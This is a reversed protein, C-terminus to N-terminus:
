VELAERIPRNKEWVEDAYEQEDEVLEAVELESPAEHPMLSLTGINYSALLAWEEPTSPAEEEISSALLELREENFVLRNDLDDGAVVYVAEENSAIVSFVYTRDSVTDDRYARYIQTTM